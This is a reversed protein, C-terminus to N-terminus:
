RAGRAGLVTVVVANSTGGSNSIALEYRGAALPTVPVPGRDPLFTDDTPVAFQMVSDSVRPVDPIRLAGFHVTNREAFGRGRVTLLPATGGGITVTDPSIGSITPSVAIRARCASFSVVSVSAVAATMFRRSNM